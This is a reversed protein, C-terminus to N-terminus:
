QLTEDTAEDFDCSMEAEVTGIVALNVKARGEMSGKVMCKELSEQIIERVIETLEEITIDGVTRPQESYSYFSCSLMLVLLFKKM